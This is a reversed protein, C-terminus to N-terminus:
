LRFYRTFIVVVDDKIEWKHFLAYLQVESNIRRRTWDSVIRKEIRWIVNRKAESPFVAGWCRGHLAGSRESRIPCTRGVVTSDEGFGILVM